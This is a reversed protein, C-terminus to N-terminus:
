KWLVPPCNGAFLGHYFLLSLFPYVLGDSGPASAKVSWNVQQLLEDLTIPEILFEQEDADLVNKFTVTDLYTEVDCSNRRWGRVVNAAATSDVADDITDAGGTEGCWQSDPAQLLAMYQQSTRTQNLRKLYAASKDGTQPQHDANDEEDESMFFLRIPTTRMQGANRDFRWVSPISNIQHIANEQVGDLNM